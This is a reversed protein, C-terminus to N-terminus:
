NPRSVRKDAEKPSVDSEVVAMRAELRLSFCDEQGGERRGMRDREVDGSFFAVVEVELGSGFGEKGAAPGRFVPDPGDEDEFLGEVIVAGDIAVTVVLGMLAVAVAKM